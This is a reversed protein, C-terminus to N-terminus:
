FAQLLTRFDRFTGGASSVFGDLSAGDYDLLGPHRIFRYMRGSQLAGFCQKTIGARAEQPVCRYVSSFLWRMFACEGHSGVKQTKGRRCFGAALRIISLM